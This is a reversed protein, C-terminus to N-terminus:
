FKMLESAIACEEKWVKKKFGVLPNIRKKSRKTGEIKKPKFLYLQFFTIHEKKLSLLEKKIMM